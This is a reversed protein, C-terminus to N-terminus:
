VCVAFAYRSVITNHAVYRITRIMLARVLPHLTCDPDDASSDELLLWLVLVSTAPSTRCGTFVRKPMTFAADAKFYHVGGVPKAGSRAPVIDDTKLFM